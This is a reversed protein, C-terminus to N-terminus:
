VRAFGGNQLSYVTVPDGIAVEPADPAREILCNALALSGLASSDQSAASVVKEGDSIARVFERRPGGAPFAQGAIRTQSTPLPNEVGLAQIFM